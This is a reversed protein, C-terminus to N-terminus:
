GGSASRGAPVEGRLAADLLAGIRRVRYEEDFWLSVVRRAPPVLPDPASARGDSPAAAARTPPLTRAPAALDARLDVGTFLGPRSDLGGEAGGGAGHEFLRPMEGIQYVTGAPVEIVVRGDKSWTYSSEPFIATIAGSRRAFVRPAGPGVLRTPRELEVVSSFGSDVRLDLPVTRLSRQLPSVDGVGADVPRPEPQRPDLPRVPVVQAGAVCAITLALGVM